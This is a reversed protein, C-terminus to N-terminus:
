LESKPQGEAVAVPETAKTSVLLALQRFDELMAKVSKEIELMRTSGREVAMCSALTRLNRTGDLLQILQRTEADPMEIERHLLTAIPAGEAAQFRALSTAKPKENIRGAMPPDYTRLDALKNASLKLMANALAGAIESESTAQVKATSTAALDSFPIGRPWIGELRELADIVIPNNTTISGAGRRSGFTTAGDAKEGSKKLPSAIFLDQVRQVLRTRDLQIERHCLLTRRFAGFTVFDLYQQFRIVDGAALRDLAAATEPKLPPEIV